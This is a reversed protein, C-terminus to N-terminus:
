PCIKLISLISSYATGLKTRIGFVCVLAFPPFACATKPALRWRSCDYQLILTDKLKGSLGTWWKFIICARVRFSQVYMILALRYHKKVIVITALAINVINLLIM